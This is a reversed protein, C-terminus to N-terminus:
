PALSKEWITSFLSATKRLLLDELAEKINSFQFSFGLDILRKPLVRQGNLLVSGFEGMPM